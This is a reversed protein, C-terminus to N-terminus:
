YGGQQEWARQAAVLQENRQKFLHAADRSQQRLRDMEVRYKQVIEAQMQRREVATAATVQKMEQAMLRRYTQYRGSRERFLERVEAVSQRLSVVKNRWYVRPSLLHLLKDTWSDPELGAVAQQQFESAPAADDEAIPESLLPSASLMWLLCLALSFLHKWDIPM